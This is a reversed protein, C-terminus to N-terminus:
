PQEIQVGLSNLAMSVLTYQGITFILDMLQKTDYREALARWTEDSVRQTAHLEDAATLLARDSASWSPVSPGLKIHAIDTDSLGVTKGIQTHQFVEYESGCLHGTRLIVIERERPALSSQSLLYAGFASWRRYLDPHRVLTRFINLRALNGRSLLDRQEATLEDDRLPPVRPTPTSM